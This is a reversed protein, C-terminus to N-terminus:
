PRMGFARRVLISCWPVTAQYIAAMARAGYRITAAQEAEVGIVFFSDRDVLANVIPRMQYVKRPDRPVAGPLKEERRKPDDTSDIRAPLEFVSSPLYSLFCRTRAFAEIESEVVDDVTGNRGHIASGGLEEKTVNQGIRPVVPPGAAFVQSSGQVM